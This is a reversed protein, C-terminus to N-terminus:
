TSCYLLSFFVVERAVSEANAGFQLALIAVAALMVWRKRWVDSKEGLEGGVAPM